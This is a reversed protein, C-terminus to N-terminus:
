SERCRVWRRQGGRWIEGDYVRGNRRVKLVLERRTANRDTLVLRMERDDLWWQPATVPVNRGNDRLRVTDTLLAAGPVHGFGVTVDIPRAGATRCTFGGTAHAPAAAALVMGAFILKKM